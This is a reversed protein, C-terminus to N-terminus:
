ATLASTGTCDTNSRLANSRSRINFIQVLNEQHRPFNDHADHDRDDDHRVFLTGRSMRRQMIMIMDAVRLAIVTMMMVRMGRMIMVGMTMELRYMVCLHTGQRQAM